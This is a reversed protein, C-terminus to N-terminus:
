ATKAAVASTILKYCSPDLATGEASDNVAMEVRSDSLAINRRIQQNNKRNVESGLCDIRHHYSKIYLSIVRIVRIQHSIM